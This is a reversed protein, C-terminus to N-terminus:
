ICVNTLRVIIIRARVVILRADALKLSPVHCVLQAAHHEDVSARVHMHWAPADCGDVGSASSSDEAVVADTLGRCQADERKEKPVQWALNHQRALTLFGHHAENERCVGARNRELVLAPGIAVVVYPESDDPAPAVVRVDRSVPEVAGAEALLQKDVFSAEQAVVFGLELRCRKADLRGALQRRGLIPSNDEPRRGRRLVLLLQPTVAELPGEPWLLQVVKVAEHRCHDLLVDVKRVDDLNCNAQDLLVQPLAGLAGLQRELLAFTGDLAPQLIPVCARIREFESGLYCLQFVVQLVM